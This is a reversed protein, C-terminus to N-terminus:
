IIVVTEKPSDRFVLVGAKKFIRFIGVRRFKRLGIMESNTSSLVLGSSVLTSDPNSSEAENVDPDPYSALLLLWVGEEQIRHLVDPPSSWDLGIYSHMIDAGDLVIVLPNASNGDFRLSSSKLLGIHQVKGTLTLSGDTVRGLPDVGLVTTKAEWM